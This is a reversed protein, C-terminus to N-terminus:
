DIELFGIFKKYFSVFVQLNISVSIYMKAIECIKIKM